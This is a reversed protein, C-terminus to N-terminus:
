SAGSPALRYAKWDGHFAELGTYRSQKSPKAEGEQTDESDARFPIVDDTIEEIVDHLSHLVDKTISSFAGAPGLRYDDDHFVPPPSSPFACAALDGDGTSSPPFSKLDRCIGSGITKGDKKKVAGVIVETALAHEVNPPPSRLLSSVGSPTGERGEVKQYTPRHDEEKAWLSDNNGDEGVMRPSSDYFHELGPLSARFSVQSLSSSFSSSSSRSSSRKKRPSERRTSPLLPSSPCSPTNVANNNKTDNTEKEHTTGKRRPGDKKKERHPTPLGDLDKRKACPHVTSSDPTNRKREGEKSPFSSSPSCTSLVPPSLSSLPTCSLFDDIHPVMFVKEPLRDKEEERHLCLVSEQAQGLHTSAIADLKPFSASETCPHVEKAEDNEEDWQLTDFLVMPSSCSSDEEGEEEGEQTNADNVSTEMFGNAMNMGTRSKQRTRQNERRKNKQKEEKETGISTTSSTDEFLRSLFGTRVEPVSALEVVEVEAEGIPPHSVTASENSMVWAERTSPHHHRQSSLFSLLETDTMPPNSRVVGSPEERGWFTGQVGKTPDEKEPWVGREMSIADKEKQLPVGVVQAPSLYLCSAAFEGPTEEKAALFEEICLLSFASAVPITCNAAVSLGTASTTSDVRYPYSSPLFSSSSSSSSSPSAVPAFYSPDEDCESSHLQRRWRTSCRVSTMGSRTATASNLTSLLGNSSTPPSLPLSAM